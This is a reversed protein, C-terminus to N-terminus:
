SEYLTMSWIYDRDLRDKKSYIAVTNTGYMDQILLLNDPAEIIIKRAADRTIVKTDGPNYRCYYITKHTNVHKICDDKTIIMDEEANIPFKWADSAHRDDTIYDGGNFTHTTVWDTNLGTPAILDLLESGPTLARWYPAVPEEPTWDHISM